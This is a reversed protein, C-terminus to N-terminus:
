LIMLGMMLILSLLAREYPSLIAKLSEISRYILARSSKVRIGLLEAIESYKLGEYFYLLIAERQLPPLENLKNEILKKRADDLQGNIMKVESSITVQFATNEEFNALEVAERKQDKTLAHIIRNRLSKMLYFKISTTSALNKRQKILDLFLDQLCDKVLSRDNTFQFGYNFLFNSYNRFIYTLAKQSGKKFNEWILQEYEPDGKGHDEATADDPIHLFFDTNREPRLM